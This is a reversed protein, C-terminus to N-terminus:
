PVYVEETIKEHSSGAFDATSLLKWESLDLDLTRDGPYIRNWHYVILKEIKDCFSALPTGESFCFAGKGALELFREDAAIKVGQVGEFLKATDPSVYLTGGCLSLIRENLVRDRSQRRGNFRVGNRDDVTVAVIM